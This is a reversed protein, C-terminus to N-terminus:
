SKDSIVSGPTLGLDELVVDPSKGSWETAGFQLHISIQESVWSGM